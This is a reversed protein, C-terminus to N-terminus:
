PRHSVFERLPALNHQWFIVVGGTQADILNTLKYVGALLAATVAQQGFRAAWIPAKGKVERVLRKVSNIASNSTKCELCLLRGDHLRTPVDCNTGAVITERTFQGRALADLMDIRGPSPVEEYGADLLLRAAVDEQTKAAAKRRETSVRNAAVVGTTWNVAVRREDDTAARGEALWPCRFPDISARLVEAVRDAHAGAVKSAALSGEALTKLDDQSIIPASLYRAWEILDPDQQLRQGDLQHLDATAAFLREVHPRLDTFLEVYREPGGWSEIVARIAAESDRELEDPTWALLIDAV